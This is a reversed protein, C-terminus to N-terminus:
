RTRTDRYRQAQGVLEAFLHQFVQKGHGDNHLEPHFQCGIAFWESEASEIVEIIGDPARAAVRLGDGVTACCFRHMSNVMIQGGFPKRQGDYQPEWRGFEPDQSVISHFTSDEEIEIGHRLDKWEHPMVYDHHQHPHHRGPYDLIPCLTGGLASNLVEMGRCSALIPLRLRRALRMREFNDSDLVGPGPNHSPFPDPGQHWYMSNPDDGGPFWLGHVMSLELKIREKDDTLPLLMPVVYPGVAQLRQFTTVAEGCINIGAERWPILRSVVGIIIPQTTM